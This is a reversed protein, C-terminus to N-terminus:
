LVIQLGSGPNAERWFLVKWVMSCTALFVVFMIIFFVWIHHHVIKYILALIQQCM